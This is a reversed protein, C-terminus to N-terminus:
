LDGVKGAGRRGIRLLGRVLLVDRLAASMGSVHTSRQLLEVVREAPSRDLASDGRQDEELPAAGEAAGREGLHLTQEARHM